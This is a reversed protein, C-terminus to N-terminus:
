AARVTRISEWASAIEAMVKHVETLEARVNSCSAQIVKRRAWDYLEALSAAVDGGREFDLSTALVHLITLSKSLHSSKATFDKAELCEGARDLNSLLETFLIQVLNHADAGEVLFEQEATQYAKIAQHLM